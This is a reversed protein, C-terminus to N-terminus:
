RAPKMFNGSKVKETRLHRLEGNELVYYHRGMTRKDENLAGSFVVLRSDHRFEVAEFDDHTRRWGSISFPVEIITGSAAEVIAANVCTSGCGWVALFYRGAFNATSTEGISDHRRLKYDDDEDAKPLPLRKVTTHEIRAEPYDTFRPSRGQASAATAAAVLFLLALRIAARNVACHIAPNM